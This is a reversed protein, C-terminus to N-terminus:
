FTNIKANNLSFEFLLKGSYYGSLFGRARLRISDSTKGVMGSVAM